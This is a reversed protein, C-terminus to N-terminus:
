ASFAHRSEGARMGGRRILARVGLGSVNHATMYTNGGAYLADRATTGAEEGYRVM